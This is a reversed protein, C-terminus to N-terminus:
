KILQYEYFRRDSGVNKVRKYIGMIGWPTFKPAYLLYLVTVLWIVMNATPGYTLIIQDFLVLIGVGFFPGIFTGLGGVLIALFTLISVHV